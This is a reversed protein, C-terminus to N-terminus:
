TPSFFPNALLANRIEIFVNRDNKKVTSIYARIRAFYKAGKISRFTGSVKQKVKIMRIDREALNNDFPVNFDLMFALVSATNKEFRELLNLQKPKKCKGRKNTKIQVRSISNIGGGVINQYKTIFNILTEKELETKGQQQASEVEKKIELLLKKMEGAWAANEEEEFWTLERLHHANCLGHKCNTYLFYTAWSDHVIKGKRYPLIGIRDTASKGREADVGYHTLNTTSSSHLWIRKGECYIGSEDHHSVASNQIQEMTHKEFPELENYMNENVRNITSVNIKYGTLDEMFESIRDYSMFQYNSLNICLSQLNIGYQVPAKVTEPFKAKNTHGCRCIKIESQHETVELKIIPLDFVQRKEYAEAESKSLDLGCKECCGIRHIETKDPNAVMELTKGLHGEQGGQKKGTKERSNKIIKIIAKSPPIHSNHSDKNKQGELEKIRETLEKIRENLQIITGLIAQYEEQRILIYGEPIEM